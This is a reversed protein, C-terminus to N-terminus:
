GSARVEVVSEDITVQRSTPLPNECIACVLGRAPEEHGALSGCTQCPEPLDIAPTSPSM